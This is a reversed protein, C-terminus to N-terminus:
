APSWGHNKLVVTKSDRFDRTFEEFGFNLAPLFRGDDSHAVVQAVTSAGPQVLGTGGRSTRYGTVQAPDGTNVIAAKIAAVSWHPRAQRTLAAVGAVHPAAMSTGSLTQTGNGTGSGASVIAVGPATIDPKLGSDGTRPGGSSFSAFGLYNPNPIQAAPGVTVSTSAALRGGDSTATGALGRVGFFPITVTYLEGTDPNSTIPGEFPPYGTSTDIMAVAAAGAKQGYVARAVRACNGRQVVVLKGTVGAATYEAPDCGLSVAGAADRLVVVQYAAGISTANNSNQVAIPSGGTNLTFPAGPFTATPDSAAVTIAGDAAGPSGSIYQNPGSNGASIVVVVGARAANTAAVADASDKSGFPSGLSLNIVDLDNDVAWEIADVVVDTSGDCGFV